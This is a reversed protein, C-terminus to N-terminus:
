CTQMDPLDRDAAAPREPSAARYTSQQWDAIAATEVAGAFGRPGHATGASDDPRGLLALAKNVATKPTETPTTPPRTTSRRRRWHDRPPSGAAATARPTSGASTTGAPSTRRASCGSGPWTPSGPDLGRHRRRAGRACCGPSTSSPPKVMAPGEYFDPHMLIAELLPRIAYDRQSTSARLAKRTPRRPRCPVFYSWLKDVFFRCHAPHEVCLRCPTAGTGARRDPRLDEEGPDHLEPRLPLEDDGVDDGLRRRWGTLARAQERVDDETYSGSPRRRAHVAGDARPRLEREAGVQHQRDGSLWVLM